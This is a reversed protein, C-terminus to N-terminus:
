KIMTAVKLDSKTVKAPTDAGPDVKLTVELAKVGIQVEGEIIFEPGDTVAFSSGFNEAIGGILFSPDRGAAHFIWSLM